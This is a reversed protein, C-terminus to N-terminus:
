EAGTGDRTVEIRMGLKTESIGSSKRSPSKKRSTVVAESAIGSSSVKSPSVQRGRSPSDLEAQASEEM